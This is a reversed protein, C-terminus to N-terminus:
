DGYAKIFINKLDDEGVIIPNFALESDEISKNILEGIRSFYHDKNIKLEKICIPQGVESYFNKIASLIDDIGLLKELKEYKKKTREDNFNFEIVYPLFIGVSTGHPIHFTAGFSHGLAHALATGSNSFAIGAMTASLHMLDKSEEDNEMARKLHNFITEIAKEALADTLITSTNASLAEFAHVFADIGTIRTIEKETPTLSSDLISIYPVLEYNGLAIKKNNDTLVIGFSVDSGTGSTTPIAILKVNIKMPEFPNVNRLDYNYNSYKIAISKSYDIVSGGGLAIITDPIFNKFKQFSNEINEISPEPIVEDIIIFNKGKISEIIKGGYIKMINKDTVLIINKSNENELISSLTDIIDRQYYIKRPFTFITM